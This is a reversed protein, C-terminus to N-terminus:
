CCSHVAGSAVPSGRRVRGRRAPRDSLLPSTQVVPIKSRILLPFGRRGCDGHPRCPRPRTAPFLGPSPSSSWPTVSDDAPLWEPLWPSSRGQLEGSSYSCRAAALGLDRVSRFPDPHGCQFRRTLLNPTRTGGLAGLDSGKEADPLARKSVSKSVSGSESGGSRRARRHPRSKPIPRWRM